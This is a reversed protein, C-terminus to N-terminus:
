DAIILKGVSVTGGESEIKYLYIGAILDGRELKYTTNGIANLVIVESSVLGGNIDSLSLKLKNATVLARNIVFYVVESFPNPYVIAVVANQQNKIIATVSGTYEYAGLDIAAGTIRKNGALDTSTILLGSTDPTGADIAPSGSTLLLNGDWEPNVAINGTGAYGGKVLSYTVNATFGQPNFVEPVTDNWLISNIIYLPAANYIAGSDSKNGSFSCNIISSSESTNVYIAGGIDSSNNQFLSNSLKFYGYSCFVGGNSPQSFAEIGNNNIFKSNQVVLSDYSYIVAGYFGTDNTFVCNSIFSPGGGLYVAGGYTARSGIITCNTLKISGASAYIAGGNGNSVEDGKNRDFTCNDFFSSSTTYVAGGNTANNNTFSSNTVILPGNAAIAGANCDGGTGKNSSFSCSDISISNGAYIGGGENSFTNGIFECKKITASDYCVVAGGSYGFNNEFTCNTINAKALLYLGGGMNSASNNTFTCNTITVLSNSQYFTIASGQLASNSEFSCSTVTLNCYGEGQIVGEDGMTNNNFQSNSVVITCSDYSLIGAGSVISYNHLFQSSDISLISKHQQYICAGEEANNNSFLSNRITLQSLTDAFIAGGPIGASINNKFTCHNIILSARLLCLGAGRISDQFNNINYGDEVIFGDLLSSTSTNKCVLITNTNDVSDGKIAIDGSLITVNTVWNRQSVSSEIGAFGGYLSIGGNLNFSLYKGAHGVYSTAKYVGAAVWIQDGSLAEKLANQLSDYANTWSSGNNAGSANSNVYIIKQANVSNIFLMLFLVISYVKIM